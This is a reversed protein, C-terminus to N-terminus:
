EETKEEQEQAEVTKLADFISIIDKSAEVDDEIKKLENDVSKKKLEQVKIAVAKLFFPKKVQCELSVDEAKKDIEEKKDEIAKQTEISRDLIANLVEKKTGPMTEGAMAFQWSRELEKNEEKAVVVPGDELSPKTITISVGHAELYSKLEDDGLFEYHNALNIFTDLTEHLRPRADPSAVGGKFYQMNKLSLFDRKERKFVLGYVAKLKGLIRSHIETMEYKVEGCEDLKEVFTDKNNIM